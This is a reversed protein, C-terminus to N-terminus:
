LGQTEFEQYVRMEAEAKTVLDGISQINATEESLKYSRVSLSWSKSLATVDSREIQSM